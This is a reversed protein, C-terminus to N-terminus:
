IVFKFFKIMFLFINILKLFQKKKRKEPDEVIAIFPLIGVNIVTNRTEEIIVHTTDSNTIM